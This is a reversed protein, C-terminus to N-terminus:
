AESISLDHNVLRLENESQEIHRIYARLQTGMIGMVRTLDGIEDRRDLVPVDPISKGSVKEVTKVLNTLPGTISRAILHLPLLMLVLAV